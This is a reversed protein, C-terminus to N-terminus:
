NITDIVFKAILFTKHSTRKLTPLAKRLNQIGYSVNRHRHFGTFRAYNVHFDRPYGIIPIWNCFRVGTIPCGRSRAGILIHLLVAHQGIQFYNFSFFKSLWFQVLECASDLKATLPIKQIWNNGFQVPM